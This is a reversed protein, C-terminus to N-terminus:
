NVGEIQQRCAPSKWKESSSGHEACRWGLSALVPLMVLTTLSIVIFWMVLFFRDIVKGVAIWQDRNAEIRDKKKEKEMINRVYKLIDPPLLSFKQDDSIMEVKKWHPKRVEDTNKEVESDEHQLTTETPTSGTTLHTRMCLIRALSKLVLRDLWVPIPKSPSHHYINLVSITLMLSIGAMNMTAVVYWASVNFYCTFIVVCLLFLVVVLLWVLSQTWKGLVTMNCAAPSM